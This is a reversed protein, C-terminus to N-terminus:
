SDVGISFTFELRFVRPWLENKMLVKRGKKEKNALALQLSAYGVVNWLIGVMMPWEACACHTAGHNSSCIWDDDLSPKLQHQSIRISVRM